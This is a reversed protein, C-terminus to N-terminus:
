VLAEERAHQFAARAARIAAHHEGAWRVLGEIHPLFSQGLPTLAYEVAPPKLPYVTRTILGDEELARLTRSLMRKSVDDIARLLESFRLPGKALQQLILTSWRDGLRDLVDRVPCNNAYSATSRHLTM